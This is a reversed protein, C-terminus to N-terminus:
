KEYWAGRKLQTAIYNIESKTLIASWPPMPTGPRGHLITLELYEIPFLKLREPNLNPGLGGKLTLGHCSGCDQKVMNSLEAKRQESLMKTAAVAVTQLLLLSTLILTLTTKM